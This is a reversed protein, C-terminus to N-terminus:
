YKLFDRPRYCAAGPPLSQCRSTKMCCTARHTCSIQLQVTVGKRVTDDSVEEATLCEYLVQLSLQQPEVEVLLGIVQVFEFLHGAAATNVSSEYKKKKKHKCEEDEWCDSSKFFLFSSWM